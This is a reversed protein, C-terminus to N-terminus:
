NRTKGAPNTQLEGPQTSARSTAVEHTGTEDDSAEWISKRKWRYRQAATPSGTGEEDPGPHPHLGQKVLTQKPM